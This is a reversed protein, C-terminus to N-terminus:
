HSSRSYSTLTITTNTLSQTYTIKLPIHREDASLFIIMESGPKALRNTLLDTKWPRQEGAFQSMKLSIKIAEFKGVPLHLKETESLLMAKVSSILFESDLYFQLTDGIEWHRSRVFYLMSFYDFCPYPISYALSDNLRALHQRLDFHIVVEHQINKQNITKKAQRPLFDASAFSTYYSNDLKFLRSPLATSHAYVTAHFLSDTPSFYLSFNWRAVPMKLYEMNYTLSEGDICTSFNTDIPQAAILSTFVLTYLVLWNPVRLPRFIIKDPLIFFKRKM